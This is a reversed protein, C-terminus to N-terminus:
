AKRERDPRKIAPKGNLKQPARSRAARPAILLGKEPAGITRSASVPPNPHPQRSGAVEPTEAQTPIKM